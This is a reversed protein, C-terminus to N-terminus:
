LLVVRLYADETIAAELIWLSVDYQSLHYFNETVQPELNRKYFAPHFASTFLVQWIKWQLLKRIWVIKQKLAFCLYKYPIKSSTKKKRWQPKRLLYVETILLCKQTESHKTDKKGM